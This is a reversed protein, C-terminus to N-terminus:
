LEMPILTPSITLPNHVPNPNPNVRVRNFLIYIYVKTLMFRVKTIMFVILM